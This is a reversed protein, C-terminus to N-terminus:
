HLFVFNDQRCGAVVARWDAGLRRHRRLTGLPDERYEDLRDWGKPPIRHPWYGWSILRDVLDVYRCMGGTGEFVPSVEVLAAAVQQQAFLHACADIAWCDVGELDVKVLSVPGDVNVAPMGETVPGKFVADIDHRAVNANLLVLTEPDEEWTIVEGDGFLGALITYWGVHAGFDLMVGPHHTLVDIAALTEHAEWVGQTQLAVTIADRARDTEAPPEPAHPDHDLADLQFTRQYRRPFGAVDPLTPYHGALHAVLEM